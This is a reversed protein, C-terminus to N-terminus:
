RVRKAKITGYPVGKAVTAKIGTIGRVWAESMNERGCNPCTWCWSGPGLDYGGGWSCGACLVGSKVLPKVRKKAQHRQWMTIAANALLSSLVAINFIALWQFFEHVNM